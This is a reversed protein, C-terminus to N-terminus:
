TRIFWCSWWVSQAALRFIVPNHLPCEWRLHKISNLRIPIVWYNSSHTEQAWCHKGQIKTLVTQVHLTCMYCSAHIAYFCAAHIAYFLSFNTIHSVPGGSHIRSCLSFAWACNEMGQGNEGHGWCGSCRLWIPPQVRSGRWEKEVPPGWWPAPEEQLDPSVPAAYREM